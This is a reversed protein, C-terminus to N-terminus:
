KTRALRWLPSAPAEPALAAEMLPALRESEAGVRGNFRTGLVGLRAPLSRLRRGLCPVLKRACVTIAAQLSVARKTLGPRARSGQPSWHRAPDVVVARFPSDERAGTDSTADMTGAARMRAARKLQRRM